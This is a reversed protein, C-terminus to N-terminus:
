IRNFKRVALGMDRVESRSIQRGLNGKSIQRTNWTLYRHYLRDRWERCECGKKFRRIFRELMTYTKM